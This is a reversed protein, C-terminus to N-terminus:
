DGGYLQAVKAGHEVPIGVLKTEFLVKLGQRGGARKSKMGIEDKTDKM